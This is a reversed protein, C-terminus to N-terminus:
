AAAKSQQAHFHKCKCPKSNLIARKGLRGKIKNKPTVVHSIACLCAFTSTLRQFITCVVCTQTSSKASRHFFHQFRNFRTIFSRCLGNETFASFNQIADSIFTHEM